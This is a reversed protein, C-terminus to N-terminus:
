RYYSMSLSHKGEVYGDFDGESYDSDIEDMLRLLEAPDSSIRFKLCNMALEETVSIVVWSYSQFSSTAIWRLVIIVLYFWPIYM